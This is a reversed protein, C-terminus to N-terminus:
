NERGLREAVPSRSCNWQSSDQKGFNAIVVAVNVAVISNIPLLKKGSCSSSAPSSRPAYDLNNKQLWHKAQEPNKKRGTEVPSKSPRGRKRPASAEVDEAPPKLLRGRKKPPVTPRDTEV